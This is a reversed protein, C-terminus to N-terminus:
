VCADVLWDRLVHPRVTIAFQTTNSDIGLPISPMKIGVWGPMQESLCDAALECCHEAELLDLGMPLHPGHDELPGVSFFFVTKERSLAQVQASTLNKLENMAM